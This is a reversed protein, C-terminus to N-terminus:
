NFLSAIGRLNRSAVNFTKMNGLVTSLTSKLQEPDNAPVWFTYTLDLLDGEGQPDEHIAYYCWALDLEPDSRNCKLLRKYDVNGIIYGIISNCLVVTKGDDTPTIEVNIGLKNSPFTVGFFLYDNPWAMGGLDKAVEFVIRFLGKELDSELRRM